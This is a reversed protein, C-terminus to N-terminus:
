SRAPRSAGSLGRCGCQWVMVMRIGSTNSVIPMTISETDLTLCLNTLSDQSPGPSRGDPATVPPGGPM